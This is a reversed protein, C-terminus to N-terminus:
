QIQLLIEKWNGLWYSYPMETSRWYYESFNINEQNHRHEIHFKRAFVSIQPVIKTGYSTAICDTIDTCLIVAFEEQDDVVVTQIRNNYSVKFNQCRILKESKTKIDYKKTVMGTLLLHRPGEFIFVEDKLKFYNREWNTQLPRIPVKGWTAELAGSNAWLNSFM